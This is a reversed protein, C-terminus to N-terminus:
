VPVSNMSLRPAVHKVDALTEQIARIDELRFTPYRGPQFGQYPMTTREPWVFMINKAREGFGKYVGNELGKGMGLVFVLMFIGWFVGLATLGTRLKHKKLTALIEQWSDRDLLM